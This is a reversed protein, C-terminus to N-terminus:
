GYQGLQGEGIKQCVENPGCRVINIQGKLVGETARGDDGFLNPICINLGPVIPPAVTTTPAPLIVKDIVHIVGNNAMVDPTVVPFYDGEYSIELSFDRILTINEGGFTQVSTLHSTLDTSLVTVGTVFHRSVIIQKEKPTLNELTGEPLKAFAEDSPAFITVDRQMKLIDVLTMPRGPTPVLGLYPESLFKLLTKFNGAERAVDIVNGPGVPPPPPAVTPLIVKDMVHIVGNSAMIDPTVVSIINGEYSIQFWGIEEGDYYNYQIIKGDANKNILMISENGFTKVPGTIVDAALLSVGPAIHRSVITLKQEDTLSELTGEPLKAFAEDTPAFITVERQMKLIDVLTMSRDVTHKLLM